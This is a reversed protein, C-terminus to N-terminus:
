MLTLSVGKTGIRKLELYRLKSRRLEHKMEDVVRELHSEVAKQAEVELVLHMGGQLDLGLNIKDRPLLSSWWMPLDSTLTPVLYILAM